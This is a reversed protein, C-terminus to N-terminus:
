FSSDDIASQFKLFNVLIPRVYADVITALLMVMADMRQHIM